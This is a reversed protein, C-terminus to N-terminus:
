QRYLYNSKFTTILYLLLRQISKGDIVGQLHLSGEFFKSQKKAVLCAVLLPNLIIAGANDLLHCGHWTRNLSWPFSPPYVLLWEAKM